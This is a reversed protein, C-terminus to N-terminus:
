RLLCEGGPSARDVGTAHLQQPLGSSMGCLFEAKTRSCLVSFKCKYGRDCEVPVRPRVLMERTFCKINEFLWLYKACLGRREWKSPFIPCQLFTYVHPYSLAPSMISLNRTQTGAPATPYNERPNVKQATKTDTGGGHKGCCCLFLGQWAVLLAPPLNYSFM